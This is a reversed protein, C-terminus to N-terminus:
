EETGREEGAFLVELIRDVMPDKIFYNVMQGQRECDVLGLDRLKALHQSISSQSADMCSCFSSVSCRGYDHMQRVLCLRVPHGLARLLDAGRRTEAKHEASQIQEARREREQTESEM